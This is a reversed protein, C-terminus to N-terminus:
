ANMDASEDTHENSTSVSACVYCVLSQILNLAGTYDCHLEKETM